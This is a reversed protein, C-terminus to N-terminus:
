VLQGLVTRFALRCRVELALVVPAYWLPPQAVELVIATVIRVLGLVQALPQVPLTRFRLELTGVSLAYWTLPPAVVVVIAAVIRVLECAAPELALVARELALAAMADRRVEPAVPVPVAPVKAVLDTARRPIGVAPVTGLRFELALRGLQAHEIGFDAVALVVAAITGVFRWIKATLRVVYANLVSLTPALCSNGMPPVKPEHGPGRSRHPGRAGTLDDVSLALCWNINKNKEALM